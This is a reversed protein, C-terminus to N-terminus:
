WRRTQSERFDSAANRGHGIQEVGVFRAFRQAAQADLRALLRLLRGRAGFFGSDQFFMGSGVGSVTATAGFSRPTRVIRNTSVTSGSSGARAAATSAIRARRRAIVAFPARHAKLNHLAIRQGNQRM